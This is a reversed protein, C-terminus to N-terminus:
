PKPTHRAQRKTEWPKAPRGRRPHAAAFRLAVEFADRPINPYDVVLVDVTDGDAIRAAVTHVPIRTGTIIPQGGFIHEDSEIFRDRLRAYNAAARAQERAETVCRVAVTESLALERDGRALHPKEELVWRCVRKKVPVPLPFGIRDFITLVAVADPPLVAHRGHRRVPIVRQEIAKDLTSLTVGAFTAVERRSLTTATSHARRRSAAKGLQTATKGRGM